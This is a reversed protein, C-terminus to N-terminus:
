SRLFVERKAILALAGAVIFAMGIVFLSRDASGTRPLEAAPATIVAGKVENDVPAVDGTTDAEGTTPAVGGTTTGGDTTGVDCGEVWYTKHKIQAGQEDGDDATITLKVHFGQQEHPTFSALADTLDITFQGDLGAESGGGSNDDDHLVADETVLVADGTPPQAEFVMTVETNADFGYFDVQFSCGVHPQNDPHTDFETGDVKITGNNGAPEGAPAAQVPPGVAGFAIMAIGVILSASAIRQRTPNITM